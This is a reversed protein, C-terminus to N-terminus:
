WIEQNKTMFQGLRGANEILSIDKALSTMGGPYSQVYHFSVAHFRALATLILKMEAGDLCWKREPQTDHVLQFGKEKLDEMLICNDGSRCYFVRPFPLTADELVGVTSTFSIIILWM